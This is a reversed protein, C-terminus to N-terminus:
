HKLSKYVSADLYAVALLHTQWNTFLNLHPDLNTTVHVAEARGGEGMM